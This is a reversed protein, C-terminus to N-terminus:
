SSSNIRVSSVRMRSAAFCNSNSFAAWNRSRILPSFSFSTFRYRQAPAIQRQPIAKIAGYLPWQILHILKTRNSAFADRGPCAPVNRCRPSEQPASQVGASDGRARTGTLACLLLSSFRLYLHLQFGDDSEQSRSWELAFANGFKGAAFTQRMKATNATSYKLNRSNCIYGLLKVRAFINLIKYFLCECCCNLRETCPEASLSHLMFFSRDLTAMMPGPRMPCAIPRSRACDRTGILNMTPRLWAAARRATCNIPFPSGRSKASGRSRPADTRRMVVESEAMAATARSSASGPFPISAHRPFTTSWVQPESGLSTSLGSWTRPAAM